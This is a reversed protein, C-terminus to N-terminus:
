YLTRLVKHWTKKEQLLICCLPDTLELNRLNPEVPIPNRLGVEVVEKPKTVESEQQPRPQSSHPVREVGRTLKYRHTFM